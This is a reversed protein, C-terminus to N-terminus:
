QNGLPVESNVTTTTIKLSTVGKNATKFEDINKQMIFMPPFSSSIPVAKLTQLEPQGEGQLEETPLILVQRLDQSEDKGLASVFVKSTINGETDVQDYALFLQDGHTKPRCSPDLYYNGDAEITFRLIM